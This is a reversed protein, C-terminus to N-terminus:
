YQRQEQVGGDQALTRDIFEELGLVYYHLILKILYYNASHVNYGETLTPHIVQVNREKWSPSWAVLHHLLDAQTKGLLLVQYKICFQHTVLNNIKFVQNTQSLDHYFTLCFLSIM